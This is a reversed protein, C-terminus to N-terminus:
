ATELPWESLKELREALEDWRCACEYAAQVLTVWAGGPFVAQVRKACDRLQGSLTRIKVAVQRPSDLLCTQCLYGRPTGDEYLTAVAGLLEFPEVCFACHAQGSTATTRAVLRIGEPV